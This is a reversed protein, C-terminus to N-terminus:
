KTKLSWGGTATKIIRNIECLQNLAEAIEESTYVTSSTIEEFTLDSKQLLSLISGIIKTQRENSNERQKEAICVDCVGCKDSTKEGFYSLMQVSRCENTNKVLDLMAKQRAVISKCLSEYKKRSLPLRDPHQRAIPYFVQPLNNQPFYNIVKLNRMYVLAKDIMEPTSKLRNALEKLDIPVFESFLGGYSRLLTKILKELSPNKLEFFYFEEKDITVMMRAPAFNNEIFQILGEKEIFRLASHAQIPNVQFQKCFDLLDFNFSNGEGSGVAIQLYNGIWNYIAKVMDFDPLKNELNQESQQLDENDALLVAYATKEDRGARGAEQFYAEISEPIDLHVVTRVDPKDIGMGFANTCVIVRVKNEIWRQQRLQRTINDLGAHYPWAEIKNKRLFDAIEVTRKRNRVYVVSTGPIRNLIKLLRNHKDEEHQIIYHLNSRKFSKQFVTHNKMQLNLAMDEVVDPTATATLAMIPVSPFLSRIEAIRLYSPRFDHGWQSICHAEDVAILSVPMYKLRETFRPSLLREPSLYLFKIKGDVVQQLAWEAEERKLTSAIHAATIGKKRLNEVQDKMLAILPSIVLCVGDLALAPVQFCISKGGGTPLLAITDNGKLVNQIIDEQLPRFADFGWYQKLISHIDYPM